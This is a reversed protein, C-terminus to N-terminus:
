YNFILLSPVLPSEENTGKEYIYACFLCLVMFIYRKSLFIWKNIVKASLISAIGEQSTTFQLSDM